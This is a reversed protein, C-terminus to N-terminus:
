KSRMQSTWLFETPEHVGRKMLQEVVDRQHVDVTILAELTKRFFLTETLFLQNNNRLPDSRKSL